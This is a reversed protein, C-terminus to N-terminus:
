ERGSDFIKFQHGAKQKGIFYHPRQAQTVYANHTSYLTQTPYQPPQYSNFIYLQHPGQSSLTVPTYSM